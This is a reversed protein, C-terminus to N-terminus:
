LLTKVRKAASEKFRPTMAFCVACNRRTKRLIRTPSIKQNQAHVNAIEAIDSMMGAPLAEVSDLSFLANTEVATDACPKGGSRQEAPEIARLDWDVSLASIMVVGEEGSEKLKARFVPTNM